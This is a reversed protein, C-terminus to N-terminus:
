GPDRDVAEPRLIAIDAEVQGARVRDVGHGV